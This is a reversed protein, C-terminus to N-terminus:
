WYFGTDVTIETEMGNHRDDKVIMIRNKNYSVHYGARVLADRITREVEEEMSENEQQNMHRLYEQVLNDDRKGDDYLSEAKELTWGFWRYAAIYTERSYLSMGATPEM